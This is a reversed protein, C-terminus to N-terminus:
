IKVSLECIPTEAYAGQFYACNESLAKGFLWFKIRVTASCSPSPLNKLEIAAASNVSNIRLHVLSIALFVPFVICPPGFLLGSGFLCFDYKLRDILNSKNTLNFYSDLVIINNTPMLYEIRSRSESRL